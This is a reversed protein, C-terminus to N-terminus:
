FPWNIGASLYIGGSMDLKAQRGGGSIESSSLPMYQVGLYFDGNKVAHYMLTAGVYGGFIVDSGGVSGSNNASTSGSTVVEDYKLDGSVLGIAGGAGVSVAFRPSLEWHALPGLKWVFLTTDLTRSGTIMGLSTEPPLATAVDGITPGSGSPGGHYPASPLVIGGTSFTHVTRQVIGPLSANDTINIPLYGFGFEWGIRAAGWHTLRGGYALDLGFNPSSDTAGEGSTAFTSAGHFTLTQATPNYQSPNDYGWYVTRGLANGTDDVRVYGDDYVHDVGSQDPVGPQTGSVGFLGRLSFNAKINFGVLM